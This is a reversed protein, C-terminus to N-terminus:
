GETEGGRSRLRNYEVAPSRCPLVITFVAGHADARNAATITGGMATVFGRCIALGLGTGAPRAEGAQGRYFKEFLHPMTNPSFGGGQDAIQVVLQGNEHEARITVVGGEPSYKAANDLLNFLVQEMLAPDFEAMPLYAPIDVQVVHAALLKAARRLASGVVDAVDGLERRPHIAASELRAMDLLNVIFRHLREAEEQIDGLMDQRATDDLQGYASQLTTVTGLISALPTKLDHSISTLLAARLRETEATVRAQEIDQALRARELAVTAQGAILEILRIRDRVPSRGKRIQGISVAGVVTNGAALPVFLRKNSPLALAGGGAPQNNRWCWNAAAMEADNLTEGRPHSAVIKLADNERLLVVVHAGFMVGLHSATSAAIAARDPATAMKRNFRFLRGALMERRRATIAAEHVRTALISGSLAIAFFVAFALIDTWDGIAFTYLPPIFFFNYAFAAELGALLSPRLGYVLASTWVPVLLILAAVSIATAGPLGHAVALAFAVMVTAAAYGNLRRLGWRVAAALKRPLPSADSNSDFTSM